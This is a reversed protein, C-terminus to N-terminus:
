HIRQRRSRGLNVGEKDPHMQNKKAKYVKTKKKGSQIRNEKGSDWPCTDITEGKGTKPICMKELCRCRKKKKKETPLFPWNSLINSNTLKERKCHNKLELVVGKKERQSQAKEASRNTIKHGAERKAGQISKRQRPFM